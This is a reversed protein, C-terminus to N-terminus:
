YANMCLLLLLLLEGNRLSKAIKRERMVTIAEKETDTHAEGPFIVSVYRETKRAKREQEKFNITERKCLYSLSTRIKLIIINRAPSHACLLPRKRYNVTRAVVRRESHTAIDCATDLLHSWRSSLRVPCQSCRAVAVAFQVVTLLDRSCFSRYRAMRETQEDPSPGLRRANREERRERERARRSKGGKGERESDYIEETYLWGDKGIEDRCERGCVADGKERMEIEEEVETREGRERREATLQGRGTPGKAREM